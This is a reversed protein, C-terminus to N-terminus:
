YHSCESEVVIFADRLLVGDDVVTGFLPEALVIWSFPFTVGMDAPLFDRFFNSGFASREVLLTSTAPSWVLNVEEIIRPTVIRGDPFHTRTAIWQGYLRQCGM